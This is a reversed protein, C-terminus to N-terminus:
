IIKNKETLDTLYNVAFFIVAMHDSLYLIKTAFVTSVLASLYGSEAFPNAPLM